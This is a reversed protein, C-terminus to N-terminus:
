PSGRADNVVHFDEVACGGDAIQVEREPQGDPMGDPPSLTLKYKGPSLGSLKYRGDADTVLERRVGEGEVTLRVGAVGAGARRDAGGDDRRVVRGSVTVGPSRGALRHLFRLDEEAVAVPRTRTCIGTTLRGTTGQRYAYVLYSTGTVFGYGCDGGGLGTSVEVTEGEVGSFAETVTFKVVRPTWDLGEGRAGSKRPGGEVADATGVFVASASGYAGCPPGPMMCTCAEARAALALLVVPCSLLFPLWRRRM